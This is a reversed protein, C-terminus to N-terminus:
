FTLEVPNPRHVVMRVRTANLLQKFKIKDAPSMDGLCDRVAAYVSAAAQSARRCKACQALRTRDYKAFCPFRGSFDRNTALADIVSNTITLLPTPPPAASM